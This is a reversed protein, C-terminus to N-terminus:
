EGAVYDFALAALGHPPVIDTFDTRERAGIWFEDGIRRGSVFEDFACHYYPRQADHLLAAGRRHLLPMAELLCRRRQRGDVLVLDFETDLKSPLSVYDDLNKLRDAHRTPSRDLPNIPGKDFVVVSVREENVLMKTRSSTLTESLLIRAGRRRLAPEVLDRVFDRDHEVSLWSVSVGCSALWGPYHLTSLGCGWELVRLLRDTRVGLRLLVDELLDADAPTACAKDTGRTPLAPLCVNTIPARLKLKAGISSLQRAFPLARM